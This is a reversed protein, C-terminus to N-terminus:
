AAVQESSKRRSLYEVGHETFLQFVFVIWSVV